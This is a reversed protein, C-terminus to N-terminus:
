EPSTESTFPNELGTETIPTAGEQILREMEAQDKVLFCNFQDVSRHMVSAKFVNEPHNTYKKVVVVFEPVEDVVVPGYGHEELLSRVWGFEDPPIEFRYQQNNYFQKLRSWIKDSDFYGKFVYTEDVWFVNVQETGARRFEAMGHPVGYWLYNLTRGWRM